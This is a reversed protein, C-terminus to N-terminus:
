RLNEALEILGEQSISIDSLTEFQTISIEYNLGDEAWRLILVMGDTEECTYEQVVGPTPETYTVWVAGDLIEAPLGNVAADFLTSNPCFGWDSKFASSQITLYVYIGPKEQYTYTYLQQVSNPLTEYKYGHFEWGNTLSQISKVGFGAQAEAQNKSLIFENYPYGQDTASSPTTTSRPTLSIVQTRQTSDAFRFFSSFTQAITRGYPILIVAFAVVVIGFALGRKRVNRPVFVPRLNKPLQRQLTRKQLEKDPDPRFSSLLSEITDLNPAAFKRPNNNM